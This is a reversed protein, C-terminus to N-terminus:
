VDAVVFHTVFCHHSQKIPHPFNLNAAAIQKETALPTAPVVRGGIVNSFLQSFKIFVIKLDARETAARIEKPEPM